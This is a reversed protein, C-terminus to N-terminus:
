ISENDTNIKEIIKRRNLLAEIYQDKPLKSDPISMGDPINSYVVNKITGSDVSMEADIIKLIESLYNSANKQLDEKTAEIEYVQNNKYIHFENKPLSLDIYFIIVGISGYKHIFKNNINEYTKVFQDKIKIKPAQGAKTSLQRFSSGLDVSFIDIKTFFRLMYNSAVINFGDAM